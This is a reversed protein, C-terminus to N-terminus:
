CNYGWLSIKKLQCKIKIIKNFQLIKLIDYQLIVEEISLGNYERERFGDITLVHIVHDKIHGKKTQLYVEYLSYQKDLTIVKWKGAPYIKYLLKLIEEKASM